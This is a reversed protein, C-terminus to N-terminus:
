SQEWNWRELMDNGEGFAHCTAGEGEAVCVMRSVVWSIRRM